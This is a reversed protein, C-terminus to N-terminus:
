QKVMVVCFVQAKGTVNDSYCLEMENGDVEGELTATDGAILVSKNDRRIVGAQMEKGGKPSVAHGYFARGNQADIVLTWDSTTMKATPTAVADLGHENGAGWHAMPMEGAVKWTGVLNPTDAASAPAAISLTVLSLAACSQRVFGYNM